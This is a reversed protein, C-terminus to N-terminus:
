ADAEEILALLDRVRAEVLERNGRSEVNLRLLPETNSKRLNFRWGDFEMSLGDLHSVSKADAAYHAETAAIIRDADKVTRNIEGSCPYAAIREAVLASLPKGSESVLGAILLWPVMGSDCYAFDRFYHHASMEGGYVANASRMTAKIFAHGAKTQVCEGGAREVMEITNWTLRPECVIKSGPHQKLMAEALLGVMYYGEIFEGREDFLFCRDFDGDWAIGFDAGSARVAEATAARNEPLLPNPIGNPFSADPAYNVRVIEFPLRASLADMLPGAAGNGPNAVLKLPKLKDIDVYGLLHQVLAERHSLAVLSPERTFDPQPAQACLARVEALGEDGSLPRANDGVLKMGNWGIPNHSATIMMGGDFEYHFTAFYIEETGCLGISSVKAGAAEMGLAAARLLRPSSDRVDGGVVIRQAGLYTTFAWGIRFATAEDLEEPVRGRIDYAKFIKELAM